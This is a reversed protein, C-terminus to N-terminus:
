ARAERPSRVAIARGLPTVRFEWNAVQQQQMEGRRFPYGQRVIHTPIALQALMGRVVDLGTSGGFSAPDLLVVEPVVGQYLLWGLSEVWAPEISPTIVIVTTQRGLVSRTETLVGELPSHQGASVLALARLIRWLQGEGRGPVLFVDHEGHAVLGVARNQRLMQETLSAALIVGYEETSEQGEGEQVGRDLDLVIWLDGSIEADFTKTMLKDVHASSRWHIQRWPDGPVYVRTASVNPTWETATQRAVSRGTAVGRPLMLAPLQMVPPVVLLQRCDNHRWEVSFLGLPERIRLTWPGLTFLGRRDCVHRTTWGYDHSADVSVVRDVGYEPVTSEDQIEAWVVPWTSANRLEFREQLLDGVQAITYREARSAQVGRALASVWLYSAGLAGGVACLMVIWSRHPSLLQLLALAIALV